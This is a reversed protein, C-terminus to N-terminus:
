EEGPTSAGPEAADPLAHKTLVQQQALEIGTKLQAVRERLARLRNRESGGPRGAQLVFDAALDSLPQFQARLLGVLPTTARRLQQGFGATPQENRIAVALREVHGHVTQALAMAEALTDLKAQGAGDVLRKTMRPDYRGPGAPATPHEVARKIQRM